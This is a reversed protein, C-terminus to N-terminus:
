SMRPGIKTDNRHQAFWEFWTRSNWSAWVWPRVNTTGGIDDLWMEVNVDGFSHDLQTQNQIIGSSETLQAPIDKRQCGPSCHLTQPPSRFCQLDCNLMPVHAGTLFVIWPAVLLIRFHSGVSILLFWCFGVPVLLYFILNFTWQPRRKKGPVLWYQATM